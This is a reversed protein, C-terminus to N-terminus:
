IKGYCGVAFISYVKQGVWCTFNFMTKRNRKTPGIVIQKLTM